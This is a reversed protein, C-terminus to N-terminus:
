KEGMLRLNEERLLDRQRQLTKCYEKLNKYKILTKDKDLQEELYAIREDTKKKLNDYRIKWRANKIDKILNKM